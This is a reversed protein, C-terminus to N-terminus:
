VFTYCTENCVENLLVFFEPCSISICSAGHVITEGQAILGAIVLSMAIRHDGYSQCSAGHLKTPGEVMFGDNTESIHAGMKKLENVIASIRDTEKVRLEAAHKVITTGSAQTAAVAIIPLEDIIRPIMNHALTIGKLTSPQVYINAIPEPGNSEVPMVHCQAGMKRLADLIGTRTPNIGVATLSIDSSKIITGLVCLYAASSIDGPIHVTQGCLEGRRIKTYLSQEKEIFAGFQFLLRETHDRSSWPEHVITTGCAQLGALLIASKVQASAVPLKYEISNLSTGQVSLPAFNDKDRGSILAGMLKLPQVIRDMPRKRLSTDGTLISFFDQGALVGALLRMTTGSNGCQIVDDPECLGNIGKGQVQLINKDAAISVGLSKMANLTSVCDECSSYNHILSFGQALSAIIISRHTISKDGGVCATGRISSCPKVSINMTYELELM